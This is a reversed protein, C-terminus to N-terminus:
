RDHEKQYSDWRARLKAAREAQRGGRDKHKRQPLASLDDSDPACENKIWKQLAEAADREARWCAIRINFGRHIYGYARVMIEQMFDEVWRRPVNRRRACVEAFRRDVTPTASKKSM